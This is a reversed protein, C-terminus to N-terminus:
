SFFGRLRKLARQAPSEEAPEVARFEELLEKQRKTLVEPVTVHVTVIQNGRGRRDVSPLGKGRLRLKSLPQCGPPVKLQVIGDLTLVDVTAGLAADAFPVELAVHIDPGDREFYSDPEVEIQVFLDGSPAGPDGQGGKGSLRIQMGSDVGAPVRVDVSKRDGRRGDRAVEHWELTKEQVGRAAEMFSLRLTLQLDAGRRPGRRRQGGGFFENLLDEFPEQGGGQQHFHFGGAQGGFAQRFAEFPDGGGGLDQAAHGYADYGQRKETDSLVEYAESAEQFKAADGGADPHHEKALKRYAKKIEAATASRPVGLVEYYDRKAKSSLVRHHPAPARRPPRKALHHLTARPSPAGRVVRHRAGLLTRLGARPLM